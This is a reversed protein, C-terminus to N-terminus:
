ANEKRMAKRQKRTSQIKSRIDKAQMRVEQMTWRARVGASTNGRSFKRLDLDAKKATDILKTLMETLEM